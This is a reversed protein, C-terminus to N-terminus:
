PPSSWSAPTTPTRPGSNGAWWSVVPPCWSNIRDRPVEMRVGTITEFVVRGEDEEAVKGILVSGNVPRFERLTDAPRTQPSVQSPTRPAQLVEGLPVEAPPIRANAALAAAEAPVALSEAAVTLVALPVAAVAPSALSEAAVAGDPLRAVDMEGCTLLGM